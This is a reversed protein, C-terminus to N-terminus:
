DHEDAEIGPELTESVIKRALLLALGYTAPVHGFWYYAADSRAADGKADGCVALVHIQYRRELEDSIDDLTALELDPMTTGKTHATVLRM